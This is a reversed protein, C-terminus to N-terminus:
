IYNGKNTSCVRICAVLENVKNNYYINIAFTIWNTIQVTDM